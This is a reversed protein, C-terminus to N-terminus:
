QNLAQCILLFEQSLLFLHETIEIMEIDIVTAQKKEEWKM